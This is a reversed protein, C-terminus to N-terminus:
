PSIADLLYWLIIWYGSDIVVLSCVLLIKKPPPFRTLLAEEQADNMELEQKSLTENYQVINIDLKVLNWLCSGVVYQLLHGFVSVQTNIYIWWVCLWSGVLCCPPWMLSLLLSWWHDTQYILLSNSSLGNVSRTINLAWDVPIVPLETIHNGFFTIHSPYACWEPYVHSM